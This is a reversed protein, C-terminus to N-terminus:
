IGQGLMLYLNMDWDTGLLDDHGDADIDGL